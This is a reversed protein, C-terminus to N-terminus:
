EEAFFDEDLRKFEVVRYSRVGVNHEILLDALETGDILIM